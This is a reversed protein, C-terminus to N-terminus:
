GIPPLRALLAGFATLAAAGALTLVVADLAMFAAPRARRALRGSRRRPLEAVIPAGLKCLASDHM